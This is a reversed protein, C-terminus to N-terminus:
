NSEIKFGVGKVTVILDNSTKYRIKRVHVDITRDGISNGNGWIKDFIEKRSFVKGPKSALMELLYFEKKALSVKEDNYIISYNEHNIILNGLDSKKTSAFDSNLIYKSLIKNIRVLLAKPKIPKAIFDDAGVSFANVEMEENNQATLFVIPTNKYEETKRLYECVSTGELNPMMIDLLFIDPEFTKSLKIAQIGDLATEVIFGNSEFTYKLFELIDKEDDAILIKNKRQIM